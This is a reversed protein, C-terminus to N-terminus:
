TSFDFINIGSLYKNKLEKMFSFSLKNVLISSIADSTAKIDGVPVILANKDNECYDEIGAFNSVVIPM